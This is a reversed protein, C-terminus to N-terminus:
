PIIITDGPKLYIDDQVSKSSLINNYNVDIFETAGRTKRVVRIKGKKAFETFGGAMAIAQSIRTQSRLPYVGPSRVEGQLYIRWSNIQQVIVAVNPLEVYPKLRAAIQNKLEEPTLGAAQIDNVLPLSIRGDPRVTVTRSLDQNQWVSIELVDEPGIVYTEPPADARSHPLSANQPVCSLSPLLLVLAIFLPSSLKM